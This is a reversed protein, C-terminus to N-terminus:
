WVLVCVHVGVYIYIYMCVYMCVYTYMCICVCVSMGLSGFVPYWWARRCWLLFGVWLGLGGFNCYNPRKHGWDSRFLLRHVWRTCQSELRGFNWVKSTRRLWLSDSALFRPHLGKRIRRKWKAQPCPKRSEKQNVEQDEGIRLKETPKGKGGNKLKNHSRQGLDRTKLELLISQSARCRTVGKSCGRRYVQLQM